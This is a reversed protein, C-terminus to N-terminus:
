YVVGESYEAVVAIRGEVVPAVVPLGDTHFQRIVARRARRIGSTHEDVIGSDSRGADDARTKFMELLLNTDTVAAEAGVVTETDRFCSYGDFGSGIFAAMAVTYVTDKELPQPPAEDQARSFSVACVRQGEPRTWDITISLSGSLQLFRGDAYANSVSNELAEVLVRGSVRKVIFANDFPCIEIVDRICLPPANDKSTCEVIVRDCRIGGSNVLTIDCNYFARTADALMNGLNTEERRVLRSRGELPVATHLLPQQVNKQIKAHITKLTSLVQPSPPISNYNPLKELDIIQQVTWIDLKTLITLLSTNIKTFYFELPGSLKCATNSIFAKKQRDREVNLRLVSLGRWDSGSKVVRVDGTFNSLNAVDDDDDCGSQITDPDPNDDGAARRVIHHDHGGLLVDVKEAGSLTANAVALDDVLRMHTIAIVLDCRESLRLHSAIKKAM